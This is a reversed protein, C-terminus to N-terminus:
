EHFRSAHLTEDAWRLAAVDRIFAVRASLAVYNDANTAARHWENYWTLKQVASILHEPGIGSQKLMLVATADARLEFERMRDRDHNQMAAWYADWAYDHALEHAVLAAFEDRTALALARQSALIVTRFYLGVTAFELDVIRIQIVGGRAGAALVREAAAIKLTEDQSVRLDGRRPLSAVVRARTAADLPPPRLAVLVADISQGTSHALEGLIARSVAPDSAAAAAPTGLVGLLALLRFSRTRHDDSM